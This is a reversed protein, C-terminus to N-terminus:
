RAFPWGPGADSEFHELWRARQAAPDKVWTQEHGVGFAEPDADRPDWSFVYDSKELRPLLRRLARLTHKAQIHFLVVAGPRAGRLVRNTIEGASIEEWDRTDVDWLFLEYGLEEAVRRVRPDYAMMPPRFLHCQGHGAGLEIERRLAAESLATLNPHTHSHNCVRHGAAEVEAVWRPYRKLNQGTPFFLAKARHRALLKLLRRTRAEGRPGDDFSLILNGGRGQVVERPAPFVTRFSWDVAHLAEGNTLQGSVRLQYTTGPRLSEKPTMSLRTPSPWGFSLTVPPVSTVEVSARDVPSSFIVEITTDLRAGAGM